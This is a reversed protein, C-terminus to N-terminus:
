LHLFSHILRLLGHPRSCIELVSSRGPLMLRLQLRVSLGHRDLLGGDSVPDINMM